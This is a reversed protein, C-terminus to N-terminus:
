PNGIPIKESAAKVCSKLAESFKVLPEGKLSATLVQLNCPTASSDDPRSSGWHAAGVELDWLRLQESQPRLALTVAQGQGPRSVSGLWAVMKAGGLEWLRAGDRTWATVGSANFGAGFVLTGDASLVLQELSREQEPFITLAGLKPQDGEAAIPWLIAGRGNQLGALLYQRNGARSFSLSAVKPKNQAGLILDIDQSTVKPLPDYTAICWLTHGGYSAAVWRNDASLTLLRIVDKSKDLQVPAPQLKTYTQGRRQWSLIQGQSGGATMVQADASLVAATVGPLDDRLDHLLRSEPLNWVQAGAGSALLLVTQGDDALMVSDLNKALNGVCGALKTPPETSWRCAGTKAEPHAAGLLWKGDASFYRIRRDGVANFPYWAPLKAVERNTECSWLTFRRQVQLLAFRGDPSLDILEDSEDTMKPGCVTEKSHLFFLDRIFHPLLSRALPRGSNLRHRFERLLDARNALPVADKNRKAFLEAWERHDSDALNNTWEVFFAVGCLLLGILASFIGLLQRRTHRGELRAKRDALKAAEAEALQREEELQGKKHTRILAVLADHFQNGDAPPLRTGGGKTAAQILANLPALLDAPLGAAATLPIYPADTNESLEYPHTHFGAFLQYLTVGLAYVDDAPEVSFKTSREPLRGRPIYGATGGVYHQTPAGEHSATSKSIAVAIGFDVVKVIGRVPDHTIMINAPKLDRHVLDKTHAYGIANAVQAFLALRGVADLDVLRYKHLPKGAVFEMVLYRLGAYPKDSAVEGIDMIQVVNNHGSLRGHRSAEDILEGYSSCSEASLVKLAVRNPFKASSAKYVAGMAGRGVFKEIVYSDITTGPPLLSDDGRGPAASGRGPAAGSNLTPADAAAPRVTPLGPAARRGAANGPLTPADAAAPRPAQSDMTILQSTVPPVSPDFKSM